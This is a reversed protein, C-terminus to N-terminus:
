DAAEAARLLRNLEAVAEKVPCGRTLYRHVVLGAQQQFQLYGDFRPRLCAQELTPLTSEFFSNSRRNVERDKWAALHGPQGGSDFYLTRQCTPSAVYSAYEAAIERHRSSRSIALGAGGLVSRCSTGEVSVLGGAQIVSDAYGSRSYNSYSFAFPCYAARQSRALYDWTAIPNRTLCAPDCCSVLERLMELAQAVAPGPAIAGASQFPEEGLACLLMFVHLISDVPIAPVVVLGGRALEILERWTTPVATGARAMLDPRWGSVPAAADIALAWLHGGYVYSRYSRGVSNRAQDALFDEPLCDEIPALANTHVVHGVSPHDIVMLDFKKALEAISADAFEQLSEVQWDIDVAPHLEHFRQATAVMPLYGRTHRWTVGKLRITQQSM